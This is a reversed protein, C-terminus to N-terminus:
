RVANLRRARLKEKRLCGCSQTRKNQLSRGLVTTCKGCDCRCIWMSAGCEHRRGAWATVVLRGFRQGTLDKVRPALVDVGALRRPWVDDKDDHM